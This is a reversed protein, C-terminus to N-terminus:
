FNALKKVDVGMQAFLLSVRKLGEAQHEKVSEQFRYWDTDRRDVGDKWYHEDRFIVLKERIGGRPDRGGRVKTDIARDFWLTEDFASFGSLVKEYGQIREKEHRKRGGTYTPGQLDILEAELADWGHLNDDQGREKQSQCYRVFLANAAELFRSRNNVESNVLRSDDWQHGVWDPHHEGDAHGVDPKPDLGINNFDDFAGVFNQHAWTDVFAHTAIGIRFLRSDDPAKLAEDLLENAIPGNPTTNLLHMKGDRRRAEEADPEGPLFHFIPYIRLLDMKPKLINMTQSIYNEYVDNEDSRNGVKLCVDNDDVYQSAYAIKQADEGSFGARSAILGTMWYHFEIDM